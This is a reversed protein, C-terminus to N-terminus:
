KIQAVPILAWAELCSIPYTHRLTFYKYLYWFLMCHGTALVWICKNVIPKINNYGSSMFLNSRRSLADSEDDSTSATASTVSSCNFAIRLLCARNNTAMWVIVSNWWLWINSCLSDANCRFTNCNWFLCLCLFTLDAVGSSYYIAMMTGIHHPPLSPPSHWQLWM